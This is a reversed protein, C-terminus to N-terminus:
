VDTSFSPELCLHEICWEDHVRWISNISSMQEIFDGFDVNRIIPNRNGNLQLFVQDLGM